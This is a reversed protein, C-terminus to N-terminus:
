INKIEELSITKFKAKRFFKLIKKVESELDLFYEKDKKDIKLKIKNNKNTM